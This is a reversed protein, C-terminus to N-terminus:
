DTSLAPATRSSSWQGPRRPDVERRSALRGLHIPVIHSQNHTTGFKSRVGCGPSRPERGATSIRKVPLQTPSLNNTFVKIDHSPARTPTGQARNDTAQDDPLQCDRELLWKLVNLNGKQIHLHISVGSIIPSRHEASGDLVQATHV